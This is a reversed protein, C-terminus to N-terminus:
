RAFLEVVAKIDVGLNAEEMNPAGVIKFSLESPNILIWEPTRVNQMKKDFNEFYSKGQKSEKVAVVDNEKLLVSPVDTARGNVTFLRHTAMQRAQARTVAFGARFIANDLRSELIRIIYPGTEEEKNHAQKYYKRLQAERISFINKLNQKEELQTGYRSKPKRRMRNQQQSKQQPSPNPM